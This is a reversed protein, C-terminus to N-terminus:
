KELEELMEIYYRPEVDLGSLGLDVKLREISTIAENVTDASSSDDAIRELEIFYGLHTVNMLEVTIGSLSWRWGKKEKTITAVYGLSTFFSLISSHQGEVTIEIEDNVEFGDSRQEKSKRTLISRGGEERVRFLAEGKFSSSFYVDKKHIKEPEGSCRRELVSKVTQFQEHDLRIKCEIEKAM